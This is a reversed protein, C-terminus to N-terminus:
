PQTLPRSARVQAEKKEREEQRVMMMVEGTASNNEKLTSDPSLSARVMANLQSGFPAM